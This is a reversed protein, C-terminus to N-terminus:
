LQSCIKPESPPIQSNGNDGMGYKLADAYPNPRAPDPQRHNHSRVGDLMPLERSQASHAASPVQDHHDPNGNPSNDLSLPSTPSSGTMPVLVSSISNTHDTQTNQTFM